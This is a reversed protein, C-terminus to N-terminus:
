RSLNEVVQVLVAVWLALLGVVIMLVASRICEKRWLKREERTM